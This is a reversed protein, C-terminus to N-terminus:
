ASHSGRPVSSVTTASELPIRLQSHKDHGSNEEVHDKHGESNERPVRAHNKGHCLEEPHMVYPTKGTSRMAQRM